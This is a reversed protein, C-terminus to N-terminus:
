TSVLIVGTTAGVSIFIASDSGGTPAGGERSHFTLTKSNVRHHPADAHASTAGASRGDIAGRPLGSRAANFIGVRWM